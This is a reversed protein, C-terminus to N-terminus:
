SYWHYTQEDRTHPAEVVSGAPHERCSVHPMGAKDWFRWAKKDWLSPPAKMSTPSLAVYPDNLVHRYEAEVPPITVGGNLTVAGFM